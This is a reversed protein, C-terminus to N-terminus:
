QLLFPQVTLFIDSGNKDRFVCTSDDAAVAMIRAATIM